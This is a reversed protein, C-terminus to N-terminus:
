NTEFRELMKKLITNEQRLRQVVLGKLRRNEEDLAALDGSAEPTAIVTPSGIGRGKRALGQRKPKKQPPVAKPRDVELPLVRASSAADEIGRGGETPAALDAIPASAEIVAGENPLVEATIEPSPLEMPQAPEFLHPADTEAARAIAKLDTDGWISPQSATSRRRPSKVEVIFKRQQPKM